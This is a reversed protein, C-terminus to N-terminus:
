KILEKLDIYIKPNSVVNMVQTLPVKIPKGSMQQLNTEMKKQIVRFQNYTQDTMRVFKYKIAM